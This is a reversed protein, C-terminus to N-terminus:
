LGLVLIKINRLCSNNSGRLLSKESDMVKQLTRSLEKDHYRIEAILPHSRSSFASLGSARSPYGLWDALIWQKSSFDYSFQRLGFDAFNGVKAMKRVLESLSESAEPFQSRLSADKIFDDLNLPRGTKLDGKIIPVAAYENKRFKLIPLVPADLKEFEKQTDIMSNLYDPYTQGSRTQLLGDQSQLKKLSSSDTQELLAQREEFDIQRIANFYGQFLPIRLAVPAQDSEFRGGVILTTNGHGLIESVIFREGESFILVDGNQLRPLINNYESHPTGADSYITYEAAWSLSSPFGFFSLLIWTADLFIQFVQKQREHKFREKPYGFRMQTIDSNKPYSILGYTM